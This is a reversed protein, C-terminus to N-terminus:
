QKVNLLIGYVIDYSYAQQDLLQGTKPSNNNLWNLFNFM